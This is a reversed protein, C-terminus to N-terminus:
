RSAPSVGMTGHLYASPNAFFNMRLIRRQRRSLKKRHLSRVWRMWKQECRLFEVELDPFESGCIPCKESIEQSGLFCTRKKCSWCRIHSRMAVITWERSKSDRSSRKSAAKCRARFMLELHQHRGASRFWRHEYYRLALQEEAKAPLKAERWWGLDWSQNRANQRFQWCLSQGSSWRPDTAASSRRIRWDTTEFRLDVRLQLRAPSKRIEKRSAMEASHTLRAGADGGM